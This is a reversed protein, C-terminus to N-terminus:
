RSNSRALNFCCGRIESHLLLKMTTAIARWSEALFLLENREHTTMHKGSQGDGRNIDM